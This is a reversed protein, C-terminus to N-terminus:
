TEPARAGMLRLLGAILLISLPMVLIRWSLHGESEAIDTAFDVILYILIVEVLTHKLEGIGNMRMCAPLRAALQEPLEFVFGFAIAVAFIILLVGFLFADSAGMVGM